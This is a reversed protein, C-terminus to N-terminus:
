AYYFFEVRHCQPCIYMELEERNEFLDGGFWAGWQTGEHFKKTGIHDLRTKCSVCQKGKQKEVATRREHLDDIEVGETLDVRLNGERDHQCNWCADYIEGVKEDCNTCTWYSNM